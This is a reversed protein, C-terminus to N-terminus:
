EKALKLIKKYFTNSIYFGAIIMNDLLPKVSSILGINKAILLVGLSGIVKLGLLEAMQRAKWDDILVQNIKHEKALVIAETEGPGITAELVQVLTNNSITKIKDKSWKALISANPKKAITIEEYVKKPIYVESFVNEIISLQEIASFIILPSSNSVIIM